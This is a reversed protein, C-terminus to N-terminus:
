DYPYDVDTPLEDWIDSECDIYPEVEPFNLLCM